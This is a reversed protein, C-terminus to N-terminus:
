WSCHGVVLVMQDALLLLLDCSLSILFKTLLLVCFDSLVAMFAKVPTKKGGCSCPSRKAAACSLSFVISAAKMTRTLVAAVSVVHPTNTHGLHMHLCRTRCASTRCSNRAAHEQACLVGACAWAQICRFPLREQLLQHLSDQMSSYYLQKRCCVVEACAWNQMCNCPLKEQLVRGWCLGLGAHLAHCSKGAACSWCVGLGAHLQISAKGAARSGLVHWNQMCSYPLKKHLLSDQMCKNM